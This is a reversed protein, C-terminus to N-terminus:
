NRSGATATLKLAIIVQQLDLQDTESKFVVIVGVKQGWTVDDVGVVAVDV